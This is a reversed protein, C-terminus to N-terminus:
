REELSEKVIGAGGVGLKEGWGGEEVSWEVARRLGGEFDGETEYGLLRRAKEISYTHEFVAYEVQQRGLQYPRKRGATFVWFLVELCSALALVFWAPLHYIRNHETDPKWGAFIWIMHAFDWFPYSTGDNIHFAQGRANDAAVLNTSQTDLLAQALLVHERAANKVSCFSWFNTGNGLVVNTQGKQLFTLAGPICVLDHTGYVIPFRLAGTCLHRQWSHQDETESLPKNAKLVMKEARAKTRAYAPAKADTDALPSTETLNIHEPGQCLLPSSTYILTQVHKSKMSVSLLNDTGKIVMNEYERRTGTVPSPSAAHIIVTPKIDNVLREISDYNPLDLDHYTAGTVKDNSNLASRSAAAVTTFTKSSIFHSVLHYGIFGCGGIVLVSNQPMQTRVQNDSPIFMPLQTQTSFIPQAQTPYVTGSTHQGPTSCGQGICDCSM